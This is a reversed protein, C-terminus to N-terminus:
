PKIEEDVEMQQSDYSADSSHTREPNSNEKEEEDVLGRKKELAQKRKLAQRELTSLKRAQIARQLADGATFFNTSEEKHHSSTKIQGVTFM